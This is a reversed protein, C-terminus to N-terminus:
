VHESREDKVVIKSYKKKYFKIENKYWKIFNVKEISNINKINVSNNDLM